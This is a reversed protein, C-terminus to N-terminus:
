CPITSVKLRANMTSDGEEHAKSSLLQHYQSEWEKVQDKLHSLSQRQRLSLLICVNKYTFMMYLSLMLHVCNHTCTYVLHMGHMTCFCVIDYNNHYYTYVPFCTAM